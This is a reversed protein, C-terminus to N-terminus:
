PLYSLKLKEKSILAVFAIRVCAVVARGVARQERRLLFVREDLEHFGKLGIFSEGFPFRM